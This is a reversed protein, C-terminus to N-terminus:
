EPCNSLLEPHEVIKPHTAIWEDSPPTNRKCIQFGLDHRPATSKGCPYACLLGSHNCRVVKPKVLPALDEGCKKCLLPKGEMIDHRDFVTCTGCSPCTCAKKPAPQCKGCLPNCVWCGGPM